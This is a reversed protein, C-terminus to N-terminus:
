SASRLPLVLTAGLGPGAGLGRGDRLELRGKHAQAVANVLSLGLGAGPSLRHAELRVFREVVRARDDRAIGLGDDEVIAEAFGDARARVEVLIQGGEPTFKIANELLNSLAQGLMKADGMVMVPQDGKFRLAVGKDEAVPEYFESFERGVETLDVPTFDWSSRTEMNAIHMVTAFTALLRESEEVTKNLADRDRESNPPAGLAEELRSRM